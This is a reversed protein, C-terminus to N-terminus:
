VNELTRRFTNMEVTQTTRKGTDACFEAGRSVVPEVYM